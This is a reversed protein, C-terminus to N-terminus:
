SFNIRFVSTNIRFVSTIRFLARISLPRPQALLIKTGAHPLVAKAYHTTSQSTSPSPGIRPQQRVNARQRMSENTVLIEALRQFLRRVLIGSDLTLEGRSGRDKM